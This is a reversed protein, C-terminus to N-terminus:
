GQMLLEAVAETQLDRKTSGKATKVAKTLKDLKSVKNKVYRGGKGRKQIKPVKAKLKKQAVKSGKRYSQADKLAEIVGASVVSKMDEESFGYTAMAFSRLTGMDKHYKTEDKWSPNKDLVQGWQDKLYEQSKLSMEKKQTETAEKAQEELAAQLRQIKNYKTSMEQRKATWEAPDYKRLDDWDVKEFDAMIEQELVKALNQNRELSQQIEQAKATVAGEFAKREDALAMSKHTNSSESQYGKVIDKLPVQGEKGDVKINILFDGDDTVSLQSEDLGLMDALPQDEDETDNESEDVEEEDETPEDSLNEDDDSDEVDDDTQTQELSTDAEDAEDGEEDDGGMLLEAISDVPDSSANADSTSHSLPPM